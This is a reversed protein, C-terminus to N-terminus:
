VKKKAAEAARCTSFALWNWKVEGNVLEPFPHITGSVADVKVPLGKACGLCIAKQLREVKQELETIEKLVKVIEVEWGCQRCWLVTDKVEFQHEGTTGLCPEGYAFKIIQGSQM